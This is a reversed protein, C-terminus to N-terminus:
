GRGEFHKEAAGQNRLMVRKDKKELGEGVMGISKYLVICVRRPNTYLIAILNVTSAIRVELCRFRPSVKLASGNLFVDFRSDNEGLPVCNRSIAAPM